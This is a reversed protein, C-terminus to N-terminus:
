PISSPDSETAPNKLLRIAIQAGATAVTVANQRHAALKDNAFGRTTIMESSPAIGPRTHANMFSPVIGCSLPSPRSTLLPVVAKRLTVTLGERVAGEWIAMVVPDVAARLSMGALENWRTPLGSDKLM